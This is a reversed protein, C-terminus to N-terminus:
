QEEYGREFYKCFVKLSTHSFEKCDVYGDVDITYLHKCFLCLPLMKTKVDFFTM